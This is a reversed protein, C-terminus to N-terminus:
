IMLPGLSPRGVLPSGTQLFSQGPHHNVAETAMSRILCIDDAHQSLHPLYDSIEMGSQGYRKFVRPSALVKADPKIFALQLHKTMSPPLPTGHWRQLEPKPDFLDVQSPAGAQFLFIVNKAKGAFHSTRPALPNSGGSVQSGLGEKMLLQALAISGVGGACTQFFDRRTLISLLKKNEM